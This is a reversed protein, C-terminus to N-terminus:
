ADVLETVAVVGLAEALYGFTDAAGFILLTADGRATVRVHASSAAAVRLRLTGRSDVHRGFAHGRRHAARRAVEGAYSQWLKGGNAGLAAGLELTPEWVPLYHGRRALLGVEYACGPVGIAHACHGLEEVEVGTPLPCDDLWRGFWRYRRQGVRFEWGRRRCVTRLADLDRLLLQLHLLHPM